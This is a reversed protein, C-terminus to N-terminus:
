DHPLVGILQKYTEKFDNVEDSLISLSEDFMEPKLTEKYIEESMKGNKYAWWNFQISNKRTDVKNTLSKWFQNTFDEKNIEIIGIKIKDACIWNKQNEDYLYLMKADDNSYIYYLDSLQKIFPDPNNLVYNRIEPMIFPNNGCAISINISTDQNLVIKRVRSAKIYKDEIKEVVVNEVSKGNTIEFEISTKEFGSGYMDNIRKWLNYDGFTRREALQKLESTFVEDSSILKAKETEEWIKVLEYKKVNLMENLKIIYIYELWSSITEPKKALYEASFFNLNKQILDNNVNSKENNIEYFGDVTELLDAQLYGKEWLCHLKQIFFRIKVDKEINSTSEKREYHAALLLWYEIKSKVDEKEWNYIRLYSNNVKVFKCENFNHDCYRLDFWFELENRSFSDAPKSDSVIKKIKQFHGNFGKFIKERLVDGVIKLVEEAIADEMWSLRKRSDWIEGISIGYEMCAMKFCWHITKIELEEARDAKLKGWGNEEEYCCNLFDNDLQYKWCREFHNVFRTSLIYVLEAKYNEYHTLPVNKSNLDMYMQDAISAEKVVAFEFIVKKMIYDLDFSMIEQGYDNSYVDYVKLMNVISFTSHDVIYPKLDRDLDNIPNSIDLLRLLMDNAEKREEFKFKKLLEIYKKTIDLLKSEKEKYNKNILFACLYILTVIRQQGDYLYFNGDELYGFIVSFLFEEVGVNQLFDEGIIEGKKLKKFDEETFINLKNKWKELENNIECKEDNYGWGCKVFDDVCIGFPNCKDEFSYRPKKKIASYTDRFPKVERWIKGDNLTKLVFSPISGEEFDSKNIHQISSLIFSKSIDFFLREVKAKDSGFTYDRQIAPVIIQKIESIDLIGYFSKKGGKILDSYNKGKEIIAEIEQVKQEFISLKEKSVYEEAEKYSSNPISFGEEDTKEDLLQSQMFANKSPNKGFTESLINFREQIKQEFTKSEIDEIDILDFFKFDEDMKYLMMVSNYINVNLSSKDRKEIEQSISRFVKHCYELYIYCKRYKEDRDDSADIKEYYESLKNMNSKIKTFILDMRNISDPYRKSVLDFIDKNSYLYKEIENHEKIIMMPTVTQKEAHYKVQYARDYDTSSFPTKKENLNLFEQLPENETYRSIIKVHNVIWEYMKGKDEDGYDKLENVFMDYTAKMHRVDVSTSEKNEELFDEREKQETDREFIIHPFEEYKGFAKMLLSLTIFRQQGDIVKVEDKDVYFTAMGITYDNKKNEKANKIDWFLKQASAEGESNDAFVSWKYNRQLLPIVVKKGNLECALQAITILESSTQM